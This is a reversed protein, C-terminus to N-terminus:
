RTGLSHYPQGQITYSHYNAANHGSIKRIDVRVENDVSVQERVNVFERVYTNVSNVVEVNQHTPLVGANQLLQGFELQL